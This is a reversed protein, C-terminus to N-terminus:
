DWGIQSLEETQEQREHGQCSYQDIIKNVTGWADWKQMKPLFVVPFFFFLVDKETCILSNM